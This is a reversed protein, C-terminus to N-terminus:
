ATLLRAVSVERGERVLDARVQRAKARTAFIYPISNSSRALADDEVLAWLPASLTANHSTDRLRSVLRETTNTKM